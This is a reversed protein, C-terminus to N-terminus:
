EVAVEVDAVSQIKKGHLFHTMSRFLSYDSLELDPLLLVEM